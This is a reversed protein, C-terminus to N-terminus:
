RGRKRALHVALDAIDERTVDPHRDVMIKIVARDVSGFSVALSSLADGLKEESTRRYIM